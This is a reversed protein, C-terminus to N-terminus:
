CQLIWWKAKYEASACHCTAVFKYVHYDMCAGTFTKWICISALIWICHCISLYKQM